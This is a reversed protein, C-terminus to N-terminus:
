PSWALVVPPADILGHARALWYPESLDLGPYEQRGQRDGQHSVARYPDGEWLFGRPERLLPPLPREALVLDADVRAGPIHFGYLDFGAECLARDAASPPAVPNGPIPSAVSDVDYNRRPDDLHGASGGFARLAALPEGAGRQGLAASMLDFLVDGPRHFKRRWLDEFSAKSVPDGDLLLEVYQATSLNHERYYNSCAKPLTLADLTPLVERANARRVLVEERWRLFAGDGTLYYAGLTAAFLLVGDGARVSPYYVFDMSDAQTVDPNQRMIFRVLRGAFDPAAADLVDDPAPESTLVEPCDRPYGPQGSFRPLYFGWIEDVKTLDPEGPAPHFVGATLYRSLASKVADNRSLNIIRLPRLRRLFCAYHRAMQGKLATDKLLAFALPYFAIPGSYQDISPNGQWSPRAGSERYYAPVPVGAPIDYIDQSAATREAMARGDRLPTGPPVGAFHFRALYGEMGTADFQSVSARAYRTLRALDADTGTAVYRFAAAMGATATWLASDGYDDWGQFFREDGFRSEPEGPAMATTLIREAVQGEPSHRLDLYRDYLYARALLPDTADLFRGQQLDYLRCTRGGSSQSGLIACTEVPWASPAPPPLPVLARPAAVRPAAPPAACALAAALVAIRMRWGVTRRMARGMPRTASAQLHNVQDVIHNVSADIKTLGGRM